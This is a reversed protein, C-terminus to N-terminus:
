HRPDFILWSKAVVAKELLRVMGPISYLLVKRRGFRDIAVLNVVSFIFNTAGVVISVSTAQSFGVLAFLTASYYM